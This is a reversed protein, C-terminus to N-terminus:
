CNYDLHLVECAFTNLKELLEQLHYYKKFIVMELSSDSDIIIHGNEDYAGYQEDKLFSFYDVDYVLPRIYESVFAHIKTYDKEPLINKYARIQFLKACQTETNGYEKIAESMLIHCEILAVELDKKNM